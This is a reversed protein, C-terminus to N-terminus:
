NLSPFINFIDKFFFKLFILIFCFLCFCHIYVSRYCVYMYKNGYVFTYVLNKKRATALNKMEYLGSRKTKPQTGLTQDSIM